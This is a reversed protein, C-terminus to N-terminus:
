SVRACTVHTILKWRHDTGVNSVAQAKAFWGDGRPFASVLAIGETSAPSIEGGGGLPKTGAPCDVQVSKVTTTNTNGSNATHTSYNSVGSPGAPGASGPPGAAGGPTGPPGQPGPPGAPGGPTGVPGTDGKPGPVGRPGRTGRFGRPGPPGPPGPPGQIVGCCGDHPLVQINPQAGAVGASVLLSAVVAAFVSKM